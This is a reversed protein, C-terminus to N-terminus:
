AGHSLDHKPDRKGMKPVKNREGDEFLLVIGSLSLLANLGDGKVVVHCRLSLCSRMSQM